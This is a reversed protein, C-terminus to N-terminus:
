AEGADELAALEDPTLDRWRRLHRRESWHGTKWVRQKDTVKCFQVGAGEVRVEFIDGAAIEAETFPQSPGEYEVLGSPLVLAFQARRDDVAYLVGAFFEVSM